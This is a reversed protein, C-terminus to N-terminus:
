DKGEYLTKYKDMGTMSDLQKQLLQEFRETFKDIFEMLKQNAKWNKFVNNVEYCFSRHFSKPMVSGYM